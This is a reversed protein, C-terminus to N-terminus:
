WDYDQGFVLAVVPRHLADLAEVRFTDALVRAAVRQRDFRYEQGDEDHETAQQCAEECIQIAQEPTDAVVVAGAFYDGHLQEVDQTVLFLKPASSKVLM